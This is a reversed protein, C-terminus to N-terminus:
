KRNKYIEKEMMKFFKPNQELYNIVEPVDFGPNKTYINKFIHQQLNFDEKTDLTLRINKYNNFFDPVPSLVVNFDKQSTYIFNTVHERRANDEELINDVKMLAELSVFEVWFGFHTLISPTGDKFAFSLYDMSSNWKKKLEKIYHVSLFPNDSCIRVVTDVGYMQAAGIFRSLVDTESGRYIKVEKEKGFSAIEDDERKDTTAIIIPNEFNLKLKTILLDLLSKNEYFPLVVKKPLRTSGLRAQIIFATHGSM